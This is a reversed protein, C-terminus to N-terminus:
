STRGSHQSGGLSAYTRPAASPEAAPVPERAAVPPIVLPLVCDVMQRESMAATNLTLTFIEPLLAKDGWYRRHFAERHRDIKDVERAAQRQSVKLQAATHAVRDHLPAVLRLHAGGPLDHTAYVGGRGVVVCRGALALTRVTRAVIRHVQFEDPTPATREALISELFEQFLTHRPGRADLSDVLSAPVRQELAVKEVLERDWVTWLPGPPALANLRDALARAFTVGGAGAQRSVTVFPPPPRRSAGVDAQRQRTYIGARVASLMQELTDTRKM